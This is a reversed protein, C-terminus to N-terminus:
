ARETELSEARMTRGRWTVRSGAFSALLVAVSMLDRLPLLWLVGVSALGLARDIGRAAAARVAWALAALGVAWAAGGSLALAALAWALPYQVASAAFALPALARITRGWRLEHRWLASLRSEPVTTAPVTTALRVGLGLARVKHGLLHDDALHESLAAFGGIAELTGRRLALTAGLADQRGLARALLAGPLFGHTIASAGLRAARSRDAPRGTYLTTALGTGPQELAAAIRALYDPAAHVDSDAIVLVDHRAAPLMNALNAVKRNAGQATDDVVVAVDQAAFRARVGEAVMRAPDAPDQVGFVVQFLPYDQACASSLAAELLPEPGYLPRLVTIGPRAHPVAPPAGRFRRVLWWGALSEVAGVACLLGALAALLAM